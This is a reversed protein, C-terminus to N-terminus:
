HLLLYEGRLMLKRLGDLATLGKSCDDLSNVHHFTSLGSVGAHHLTSSRSILHLCIFPLIDPSPRLHPRKADRVSSLLCNIAGDASTGSGRSWRMEAPFDWLMERGMCRGNNMRKAMSPFCFLAEQIRADGHANITAWQAEKPKSSFDLCTAISVMHCM